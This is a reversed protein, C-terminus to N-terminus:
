ERERLIIRIKHLGADSLTWVHGGKDVVLGSEKLNRLSRSVSNPHRDIASGIASSGNAGDRLLHELVEIETETLEDNVM